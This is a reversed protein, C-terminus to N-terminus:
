GWVVLSHWIEAGLTVKGRFTLYNLCRRIYLIGVWPSLRPHWNGPPLGMGMGIGRGGVWRSLMSLHVFDPVYAHVHLQNVSPFTFSSTEGNPAPDEVPEDGAPVGDIPPPARMRWLCIKSPLKSGMLLFCKMQNKMTRTLKEKMTMMPWCAPNMELRMQLNM